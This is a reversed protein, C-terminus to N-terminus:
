GGGNAVTTISKLWALSDGAAVDKIGRIHQDLKRPMVKFSLEYNQADRNQGKTTHSLKYGTCKCCYYRFLRYGGNALLGSFTLAIEPADDTTAEELVGDSFDSGIINSLLELETEAIVIVLDTGTWDAGSDWVGDDALIEYDEKNDDVSCSQAGPIATYTTGTTYTGADNATLPLYGLNAFDKVYKRNSM